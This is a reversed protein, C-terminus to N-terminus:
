YKKIYTSTHVQFTRQSRRLWAQLMPMLLHNTCYLGFAALEENPPEGGVPSGGQGSSSSPTVLLSNFMEFLTDVAKIYLIYNNKRVM